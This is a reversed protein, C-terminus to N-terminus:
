IEILRTGLVRRQVVGVAHQGERSSCKRRSHGDVLGGVAHPRDVAADFPVPKRDVPLVEKAPQVVEVGVSRKREGRCEIVAKFQRGALKHNGLLQHHVAAAGLDKSLEVVRPLDGAADLPM